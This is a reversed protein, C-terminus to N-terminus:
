WIGTRFAGGPLSTSSRVTGVTVNGPRHMGDSAAATVLVVRAAAGARRMPEWERSVSNSGGAYQAGYRDPDLDAQEVRVSEWGVGLEEAVLMALATRVGQGIEPRPITVTVVGEPDIEVYASLMSAPGSEPMGELPQGNGEDSDPACGPLSVAVLLGGAATASVKLFRRRDFDPTM